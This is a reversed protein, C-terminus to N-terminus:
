NQVWVALASMTKIDGTRTVSFGEATTTNGHNQATASGVTVAGKEGMGQIIIGNAGLSAAEEKLRKLAADIKGQNTIRFAGLSDSSILAIEEFHPPPTFYVRVLEPSIPPRPNGVIVHTTTCGACFLLM